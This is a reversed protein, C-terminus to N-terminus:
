VDQSYQFRGDSYTGFLYLGRSFFNRQALHVWRIRKWTQLQHPAPHKQVNGRWLKHLLCHRHAQSQCFPSLRSKNLALLELFEVRNKWPMDPEYRYSVFLPPAPRNEQNNLGVCKIVWQSDSSIVQFGAQTSAKIPRWWWPWEFMNIGKFSQLPKAQEKCGDGPKM